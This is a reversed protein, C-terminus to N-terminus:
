QEETERGDVCEKALKIANSQQLERRCENYIQNHGDLDM